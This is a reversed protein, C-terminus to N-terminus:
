AVKILVKSVRQFLNVQIDKQDTLMKYSIAWVGGAEEEELTTPLIIPRNHPGNIMRDYCEDAGKRRCLSKLAPYLLAERQDRAEELLELAEIRKNAENLCEELQNWTKM